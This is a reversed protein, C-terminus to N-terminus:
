VLWGAVRSERPHQHIWDHCPRCVAMFTDPNTYNTGARGAKHHLDLNGAYGCRECCKGRLYEAKNKNYLKRRELKTPSFPRLPGGRKLPTKRKLPTRKM